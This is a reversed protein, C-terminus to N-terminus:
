EVDIFRIKNIDELAKKRFTRVKDLGWNYAYRSNNRRDLNKCWDEFYAELLEFHYKLKELKMTLEKEKATM